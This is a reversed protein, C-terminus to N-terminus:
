KEGKSTILTQSRFFCLRIYIGTVFGSLLVFAGGGLRHGFTIRLFNTLLQMEEPM